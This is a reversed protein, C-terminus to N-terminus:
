LMVAVPWYGPACLFLCEPKWCLARGVASCAIHMIDVALSIPRVAALTSDAATCNRDPINSIKM